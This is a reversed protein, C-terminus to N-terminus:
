PSRRLRGRWHPRSAAHGPDIQLSLYSLGGLPIPLWFNILRYGVVGLIAIGRPTGFGVLTSTLIAEVVGLGGPTLPIAALVYALGYAVLLGDPNAWHGFAAVFLYLSGADLLWNAAAWGVAKALLRRAHGLEQLRGALRDFLARLAVEDVFPLRTGTREVLRGAWAAGRTFMLVLAVFAAVLLAGALAAALYLPSFGWVPISVVLALWLIVNLVVASGMGQAALAFGVDTKSVGAVTLLRYGLSSGAATGGPVCHSISLTTLQIRLMTFLGVDSGEPIVTRTLQAYALLALIELGLGALLYLPSVHSLLHLAKRTGAIQPLVLYEVILAVVLLKGVNWVPAPLLRRRHPTTASPAPPAAAGEGDPGNTPAAFAEM